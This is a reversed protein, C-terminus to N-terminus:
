KQEKGGPYAKLVEVDVAKTKQKDKEALLWKGRENLDEATFTDKKPLKSVHCYQCNQAPYGKEKAKALLAPTAMVPTAAAVLITTAVLASMKSLRM